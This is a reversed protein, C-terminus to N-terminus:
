KNFDNNKLWEKYPTENLSSDLVYARTTLGLEKFHVLDLKKLNEIELDDINRIYIANIWYALYYYSNHKVFDSDLYVNLELYTPYNSFYSFVLLVKYGKFVISREISIEEQGLLNLRAIYIDRDNLIENRIPLIAEALSLDLNEDMFM